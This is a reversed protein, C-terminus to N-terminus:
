LVLKERLSQLLLHTYVRYVEMPPAPDKTAPQPKPSLPSLPTNIDCPSTRPTITGSEVSETELQPTPTASDDAGSFTDPPAIISSLEDGREGTVEDQSGLSIHDAPPLEFPSECMQHVGHGSGDVGNSDDKSKEEVREAEQETVMTDEEKVEEGEDEGREGEQAENEEWKGDEKVGEIM